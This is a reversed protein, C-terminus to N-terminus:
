GIFRKADTVTNTTGEWCKKLAPAGVLTREGFTVVSPTTYKGDDNQFVEVVKTEENYFGACTYTTGLDIGIILEQNAQVM